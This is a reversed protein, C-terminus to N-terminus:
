SHKSILFGIFCVYGLLLTLGEWRTIKYKTRMVTFLVASFVLMVPLEFRLISAELHIPKILSIIGLVFLVNFINSGVINGVSISPVKRFAATLSAALEPLSTGIAFVTIGIVWPSVNFIKALNSGGRVMFDAGLILGLLSLLILTFVPFFSNLKQVTKRFKFEQIEHENFLNKAAKYSIFCFVTFLLIFIVGDARSIVLDFSLVYFLIASLLMIPAEKKLVSKSVNLPRWLSCLGLILGINAINSGVINGLAIDKHSKIVAVIGVGAEPASTGFAVIVAGIFLPTLRFLLSVKVAGQILWDSSIILFALGFLLLLTNLLIELM